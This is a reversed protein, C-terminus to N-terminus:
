RRLARAIREAAWDPQREVRSYREVEPTPHRFRHCLALM